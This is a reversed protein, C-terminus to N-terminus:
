TRSSACSAALPGGSEAEAAELKARLATAADESMVRLPAVYGDREYADTQAATLLKGM